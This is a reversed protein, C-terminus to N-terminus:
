ACFNCLGSVERYLPIHHASIKSSSACKSRYESLPLKSRRAEISRKIRAYTDNLKVIDLGNRLNGVVLKHRIM